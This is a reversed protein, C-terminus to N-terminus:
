FFTLQYQKDNGNAHYRDDLQNQVIKCRRENEKHADDTQHSKKCTGVPREIQGDRHSQKEKKCADSGNLLVHELSILLLTILQQGDLLELRGFIRIRYHEKQINFFLQHVVLM